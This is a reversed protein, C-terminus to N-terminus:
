TRSPNPVQEPENVQSEEGFVHCESDLSGSFQCGCIQGLEIWQRPLDDELVPQACTLCDTFEPKLSADSRVAHKLM